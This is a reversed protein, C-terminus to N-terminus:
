SLKFLVRVYSWMRDQIADLNGERDANKTTQKLEKGKARITEEKEKLM